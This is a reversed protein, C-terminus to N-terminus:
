ESKKKPEEKPIEKKSETKPKKDSKMDLLWEKVNSKQYFGIDKEKNMTILQSPWRTRRGNVAIHGHVIFQRAQKLTNAMKKKFVITQLRRELIARVDLALIADLPVDPDEIFGMKYLKMKFEKEFKERQEPPMALLARARHKIKRLIAKALWLEKKNRLGYEGVLQLEEMLLAKNWLKMPKGEIWKKKPKGPYGM